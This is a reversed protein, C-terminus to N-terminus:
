KVEEKKKSGAGEEIEGVPHGSELKEEARELIRASGRVGVV